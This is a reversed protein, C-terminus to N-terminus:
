GARCLEVETFQNNYEDTKLDSREQQNDVTSIAENESADGDEESLDEFSEEGSETDYESSYEEPFVGAYVQAELLMRRFVSKQFDSLVTNHLRM